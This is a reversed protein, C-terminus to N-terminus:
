GALDRRQFTVLAVAVAAATLAVLVGAHALNLGNVLPSGGIYYYFPSLRQLGEIGEALPALANVFYATVGFASTLGM